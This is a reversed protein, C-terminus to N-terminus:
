AGKLHKDNEAGVLSVWKGDLEDAYQDLPVCVLRDQMTGCKDCETEQFSLKFRMGELLFEQDLAYKSAKKKAYAKGREGIAEGLKLAACTANLGKITREQEQIVARLEAIKADAEKNSVLPIVEYADWQDVPWHDTPDVSAWVESRVKPQKTRVKFLWAEEHLPAENEAGDKESKFYSPTDRFVAEAAMRAVEPDTLTGSPPQEELVVAIPLASGTPKAAQKARIQEVKTWIRALETEGAEHMDLGHALCYAALTIMVGGVEQHPEGKPRNYVYEILAYAREKPYDGSQVLELAEEIFRDARELKDNAIESGFCAELWPNVRDQLTLEKNTESTM